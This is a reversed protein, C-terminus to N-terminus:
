SKLRAIKRLTTEIMERERLDSGYAQAYAAFAQRVAILAKQGSHRAVRRLRAAEEGRAVNARAQWLIREHQQKKIEPGRGARTLIERARVIADNSLRLSVPKVM